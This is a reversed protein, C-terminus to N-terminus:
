EFKGACGVHYSRVANRDPAPLIRSRRRRVSYDLAAGLILLVLFLVFGTIILQQEDSM